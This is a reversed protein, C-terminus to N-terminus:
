SSTAMTLTKRYIDIDQPCCNIAFQRIQGVQPGDPHGHKIWNERSVDDTLAQYAKTIKEAFFVAAAPDPNKDPHYIKSLERYAKKIEKLEATQPIRLIVFPDFPESEQVTMTAVYVGLGIMIVWLFALVINFTNMYAKARSILSPRQSEKQVVCVLLDLFHCCSAFDVNM